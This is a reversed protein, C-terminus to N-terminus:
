HSQPRARSGVLHLLFFIGFLVTVEYAAAALPDYNTLPYMFLSVATIASCVLAALIILWHPRKM